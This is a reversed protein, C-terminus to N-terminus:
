YHTIYILYYRGDRVRRYKLSKSKNIQLELLQKDSYHKTEAVAYLNYLIRNFIKENLRNASFVKWKALDTVKIRDM